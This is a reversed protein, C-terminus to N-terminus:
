DRIPVYYVWENINEPIERWWIIGRYMMGPPLIPLNSFRFRRLKALYRLIEMGMNGDSFSTEVFARDKNESIFVVSSPYILFRGSIKYMRSYTKILEMRDHM